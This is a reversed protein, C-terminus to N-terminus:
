RQRSLGWSRMLELPASVDASLVFPDKRNSVGGGRNKVPLGHAMGAIRYFSVATSRGAQWSHLEGWSKKQVQRSNRDISMAELWQDVIADANTPNVIRDAIGQWISISPWASRVPSIEKIRSGWGDAPVPAGSKMARLASMADRVAGVPMGAVIAAGAFLEPYTAALVAAVAGGASLGVIYVRKRDVSHLTCAHEIMKKISLLEGRDRAVASPRFWNFCAQPNNSNVQEPYLVVFGRTRALRSFGAAADLSEPTQGCGHLVVVLAPSKPLKAPLFSKMVLRGPNSGFGVTTALRPPSRRPRRSIAPRLAAVVLKAVKKQSRIARSLSRSLGFKM